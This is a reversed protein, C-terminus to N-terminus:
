QLPTATAASHTRRTRTILLLLLATLFGALPYLFAFQPVLPDMGMTWLWSRDVIWHPVTLGFTSDIWFYVIEIGYLICLPLLAKRDARILQVSLYILWAILATSLALFSGYLSWDLPMAPYPPWKGAAIRWTLMVVAYWVGVGVFLLNVAGLFRMFFKAMLPM